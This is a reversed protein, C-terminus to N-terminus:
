CLMIKERTEDPSSFAGSVLKCLGIRRFAPVENTAATKLTELVLFISWEESKFMHLLKVPTGDPPIDDIADM